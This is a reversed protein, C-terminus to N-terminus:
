ATLAELPFSFVFSVAPNVLPVLTSIVFESFLIFYFHSMTWNSSSGFRRSDLWFTCHPYCCCLFAGACCEAYTVYGVTWCTSLAICTISTKELFVFYSSPEPAAPQIWELESNLIFLTGLTYRCRPAGQEYMLEIADLVVIITIKEILFM